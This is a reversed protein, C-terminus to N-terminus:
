NWGHRPSDGRFSETRSLVPERVRTWLKHGCGHRIQLTEWSISPDLVQVQVNSWHNSLHSVLFIYFGWSGHSNSPPVQPESSKWVMPNQLFGIKLCVWIQSDITSPFQGHNHSCTREFSSSGCSSNKKTACFASSWPKLENWKMGHWESRIWRHNTHFRTNLCIELCEWFHNLTLIKVAVLIWCGHAYSEYSWVRQAVIDYLIWKECPDVQRELPLRQQKWLGVIKSVVKSGAPVHKEIIAPWIM